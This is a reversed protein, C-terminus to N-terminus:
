IGEKVLVENASLIQVEGDHELLFALHYIGTTPLFGVNLETSFGSNDYNTGDSFFATVDPRNWLKLPFAWMESSEDSYVLLKTNFYEISQGNVFAWGSIHYRGEHAELEDFYYSYMEEPLVMSADELVFTEPRSNELFQVASFTIVVIITCVVIFVIIRRLAM